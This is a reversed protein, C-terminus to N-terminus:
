SAAAVSVSANGIQGRSVSKIELKIDGSQGSHGSSTTVTLTATGTTPITITGPKPTVGWSVISWQTRRPFASDSLPHSDRGA